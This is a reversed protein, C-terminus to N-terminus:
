DDDQASFAFDDGYGLAERVRRRAGDWSADDGDSTVQLADGVHHKFVILAAQVCLDYPQRETKCFSRVVERGRRDFEVRAVEFPECGGPRRGNFVIREDDILPEGEGEFGALDIGSRDIVARVDQAAASFAGPDLEVPRSWHHSWGM